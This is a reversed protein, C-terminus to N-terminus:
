NIYAREKDRLYIMETVAIFFSTGLIRQGDFCNLTIASVLIYILIGLVLNKYKSGDSLKVEIYILRVILLLYIVIGLIGQRFLQGICGLDDFFASHNPGAFILTLYDNKPRVWGMGILPNDILFDKFYDISNLRALSSAYNSNVSPDASFSDIIEHHLGLSFFVIIFFVTILVQVLKIETKGKHFLWIFFFALILSMQTMRTQHVYIELIIGLLFILVDKRGAEKAVIRWFVLIMTVEYLSGVSMRMFVTKSSADSTLFSIGISNKLVANILLIMMSIASITYFVRLFDETGYLKMGIMLVYAFLLLFYGGSCILMDLINENYTYMSYCCIILQSILIYGLFYGLFSNKERLDIIDKYLFLSLVLTVVWSLYVAEIRHSYLLTIGFLRNSLIVCLISWFYLMSKKNIGIYM